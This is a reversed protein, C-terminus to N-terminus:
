REASETSNSEEGPLRWGNAMNSAAALGNDLWGLAADAAAGVVMSLLENERESFAGLVRDTAESGDDRGIGVRLRPIEMGFYGIISKMGNHGASSGSERVRLRGFPLDLEDYVVLIRESPIRYWSAILRTPIGSENMYSQPEVLLLDRGGVQTQRARDKTKWDREGVNLRRAIEDVVMFGVNHRTNAYKSGPNGLGVIMRLDRTTGEKI